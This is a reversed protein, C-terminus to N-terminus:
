KAKVSNTIYEVTDYGGKEAYFYVKARYSNGAVAGDYSVSYNHMIAGSKLMGSDNLYSFTHVPNWTTAGAVREQLVITKAGVKDMTGPSRIVFFIELTGGSYAYVAASCSNIYESAMVSASDKVAANAVSAVGFLMILLLGLAMIRKRM